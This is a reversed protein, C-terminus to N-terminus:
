RTPSSLGPTVGSVQEGPGSQTEKRGPGSIMHSRAALRPDALGFRPTPSRVSRGPPHPDISIVPIRDTRSGQGNGDAAPRSDSVTCNRTLGLITFPRDMSRGAWRTAETVDVRGALRLAGIALNRLAAM